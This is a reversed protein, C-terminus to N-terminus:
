ASAREQRITMVAGAETVFHLVSQAWVVNQALLPVEGYGHLDYLGSYRSANLFRIVSTGNALGCRCLKSTQSELPPEERKGCFVVWGESALGPMGHERIIFAADAGRIGFPVAIERVNGDAYTSVFGAFPEAEIQGIIPVFASGVLPPPPEDLYECIIALERVRIQKKQNLIDSVGSPSLGMAKALGSKSKGPKLLGASIWAIYDM